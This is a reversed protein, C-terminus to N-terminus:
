PVAYFLLLAGAILFALWTLLTGASRGFSVGLSRSLGWAHAIRGLFLLAGVGHVVLSSAGTVALIALAAMGAPAYETANGFARSARVLEPVGEDGILVGHARRQRTTLIALVLLLLLILGAWLAAAHTAPPAVVDM